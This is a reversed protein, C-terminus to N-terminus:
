NQGIKVNYKNGNYLVNVKLCAKEYREKLLVSDPMRRLMSEAFEADKMAAKLEVIGAVAPSYNRTIMILLNLTLM